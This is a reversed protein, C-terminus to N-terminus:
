RYVQQALRHQALLALIDRGLIRLQFFEHGIHKLSHIGAFAYAQGRWLYAVGVADNDDVSRGYAIHKGFANVATHREDVRAHGYKIALAYAAAFSAEAEGAYGFVDFADFMYSQLPEILVELFVIFFDGSIQCAYNLVFAVMELTFDEGVVQGCYSALQYASPEVINEASAYADIIRYPKGLRM